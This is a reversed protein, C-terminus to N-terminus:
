KSGHWQDKTGAELYESETNRRAHGADPRSQIVQYTILFMPDDGSRGKAVARAKALVKFLRARGVFHFCSKASPGPGGVASAM